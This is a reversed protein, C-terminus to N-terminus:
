FLTLMRRDKKISSNNKIPYIDPLSQSSAIVGLGVSLGVALGVSLGVGMGVCLGVSLGVSLGVALGVSLGVGLGVGLGVRHISGNSSQVVSVM